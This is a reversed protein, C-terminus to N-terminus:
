NAKLKSSKAKLEAFGGITPTFIGIMPPKTKIHLLFIFLM